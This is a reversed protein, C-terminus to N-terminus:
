DQTGSGAWIGQSLWISGTQDDWQYVLTVDDPGGTVGTLKLGDPLSAFAKVQFNVQIAEPTQAWPM